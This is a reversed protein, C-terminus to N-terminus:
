RKDKRRENIEGRRILEANIEDLSFPGKGDKAKPILAELEQWLFASIYRVNASSKTQDILEYAEPLLIEEGNEIKIPVQITIIEGHVHVNFPRTEM